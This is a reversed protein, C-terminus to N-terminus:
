KNTNILTQKHKIHSITALIAKKQEKLENHLKKYQEMKQEMEQHRTAYLEEIKEIVDNQSQISAADKLSNGLVKFEKGNKSLEKELNCYVEYKSNFAESDKFYQAVSSKVEEMCKEIFEKGKPSPITPSLIPPPSPNPSHSTNVIPPSSLPLPSVLPISNFPPSPPNDDISRPSSVLAPSPLGIIAEIEEELEVEEKERSMEKSKNVASVVPHRKRMPLQLPTPNSRIPPSVDTCTSKNTGKLFESNEKNIQQTHSNIKQEIKLRDAHSHHSLDLNAYLEQKLYYLGPSKYNAVKKLIIPLAVKDSPFRKELQSLPLADVALLGIIKKQLLNRDTTTPLQLSSPKPSTTKRRKRSPRRGGKRALGGASSDSLLTIRRKKRADIIQETKTKIKERDASSLHRNVVLKRSILGLRVFSDKKERFCECTQRKEEAVFNFTANGQTIRNNKTDKSFSIQLDQGENEKIHQLLAPSLRVQFICRQKKKPRIAYVTKEENPFDM